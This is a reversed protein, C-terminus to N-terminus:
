RSQCRLTKLGGGLNERYFPRIGARSDRLSQPLPLGFFCGDLFHWYLNPFEHCVSRKIARAGGKTRVLWWYTPHGEHPQRAPHPSSKQKAHAPVLSRLRRKTNNFCKLIPRLAKQTRWNSNLM